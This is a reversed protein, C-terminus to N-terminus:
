MANETESPTIEWRELKYPGRCTKRDSRFYASVSAMTSYGMYNVVDEARETVLVPLEYEDNERVIYLWHRKIRKTAAM